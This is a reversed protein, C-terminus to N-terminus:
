MLVAAAGFRIGVFGLAGDATVANKVILFTCGWIMTVGILSLEPLGFRRTPITFDSM